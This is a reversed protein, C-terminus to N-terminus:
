EKEKIKFEDTIQEVYQKAVALGFTLHFELVRKSFSAVKYLVKEIYECYSM